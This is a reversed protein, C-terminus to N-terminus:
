LSINTINLRARTAWAVGVEVLKPRVIMTYTWQVMNAAKLGLKKRSLKTGHYGNHSETIGRGCTKGFTHSTYTLYKAEQNWEIENEEM